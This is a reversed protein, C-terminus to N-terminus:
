SVLFFRGFGCLFVEEIIGLLGRGNLKLYVGFIVFLTKRYPRFDGARWRASTLSCM